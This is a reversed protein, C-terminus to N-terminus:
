HIASLLDSLPFYDSPSHAAVYGVKEADAEKMFFIRSCVDVKRYDEPTHYAGTEFDGVFKDAKRKQLRLRFEFALETLPNQPDWIGLKKSRADNCAEFYERVKEKEFFKQSCSTGECIIYPSAWGLRVMELNVNTNGLFLSGLTRGYKDLGTSVLQVKKQLPLIQALAETALDGWPQQGQVGNGKTVLHTEPTDMHVMRVKIYEAKKPPEDFNEENQNNGHPTVWVTDGDVVKSIEGRIVKDAASATTTSLSAWAAVIGVSLYVIFRGM